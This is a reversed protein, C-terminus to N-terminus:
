GRVACNEVTFVADETARERMLTAEAEANKKTRFFCLPRQIRAGTNLTHEMMVVWKAYKVPPIPEVRNVQKTENM